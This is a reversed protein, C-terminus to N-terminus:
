VLPPSAIVRKHLVAFTETQPNPTNRGIITSNGKATRKDKEVRGLLAGCGIEKPLIINQDQAARAQQGKGKNRTGWQGCHRYLGISDRAGRESRRGGGVRFCRLGTVARSDALSGGGRGRRSRVRHAMVMAAGPTGSRADDM